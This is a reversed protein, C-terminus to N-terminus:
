AEFDLNSPLLPADSQPKSTVPVASDVTDFCFDDVWVQGTGALLIGFAVLVSAVPVDVVIAYQQWDVTGQIPRDAMNDFSLVKSAAGDVRVWLGAWQLVDQAKVYATMQLRRGRLSDAKYMQMLTGFDNAQNHRSKLYGSAQGQHVVNRDVGIEYDNPSDGALFWGVPASNNTPLTTATM